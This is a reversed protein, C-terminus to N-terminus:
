RGGSSSFFIFAAIEFPINLAMFVFLNWGAFFGWADDAWKGALTIFGGSIPLYTGMEAICNNVVGVM